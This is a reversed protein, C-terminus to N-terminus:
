RERTFKENIKRENIKYKVWHMCNNNDQDGMFREVFLKSGCDLCSEIPNLTKDLLIYPIDKVKLM